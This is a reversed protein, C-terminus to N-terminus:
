SAWAWGGDRARDTQRERRVCVCTFSDPWQQVAKGEILSVSEAEEKRIWLTTSRPPPTHFRLRHLLSYASLKVTQEPTSLQYTWLQSKFCPLVAGLGEVHWVTLSSFGHAEGQLSMGNVAPCTFVQTTSRYLAAYAPHGRLSAWYKLYLHESSSTAPPDQHSHFCHLICPRKWFSAILLPQTSSQSLWPPQHFLLQLGLKSELM